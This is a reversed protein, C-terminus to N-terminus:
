KEVEVSDEIIDADTFTVKEAINYAEKEDAAEIEKSYVVTRTVLWKNGRM